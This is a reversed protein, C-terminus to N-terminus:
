FRIPFIHLHRAQQYSCHHTANTDHFFTHNHIFVLLFFYLLLYKYNSQYFSLLRNCSSVKNQFISLSVTCSMVINVLVNVLSIIQKYKKEIVPCSAPIQAILHQTSYFKHLHKCASFSFMHM